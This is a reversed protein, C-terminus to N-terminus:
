SLQTEVRSQDGEEGFINLEAAWSPDMRKHSMRLPMGRAHKSICADTEWEAPTACSPGTGERVRVYM